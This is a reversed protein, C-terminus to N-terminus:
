IFAADLVIPFESIESKQSWHMWCLQSSQFFFFRLSPFFLKSRDDLSSNWTLFEPIKRSSQSSCWWRWSKVENKKRLEWNGQFCWFDMLVQWVTVNFAWVLLFGSKRPSLCNGSSVWSTVCCHSDILWRKLWLIINPSSTVFGFTYSRVNGHPKCAKKSSTVHLNNKVRRKAKPSPKIYINDGVLM